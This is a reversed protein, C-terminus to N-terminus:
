ANKEELARLRKDMEDLEVVRGLAALADILQRGVDPSLAGSAIARMTARGADALSGDEPLDFTVTEGVARIPPVARELLLKLAKTDGAKALAIAKKILHPAHPAILERLATRRDAKGKPRGARNGSQGPTFKSM